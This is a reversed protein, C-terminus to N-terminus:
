GFDILYKKNPHFIYKQQFTRIYNVINIKQFLTMKLTVTHQHFKKEGTTLVHEGSRLFLYGHGPPRTIDM